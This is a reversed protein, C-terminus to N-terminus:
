EVPGDEFEGDEEPPEEGEPDEGEEPEEEAEEDRGEEDQPEGEEGEEPEEEGEHEQGEEDLSEEDQPDVKNPFIPQGLRPTPNLPSTQLQPLRPKLASGPQLGRIPAQLPKKEYPSPLKAPNANLAGKDGEGEAESPAAAKDGDEEDLNIKGEIEKPPVYQYPKDAGDEQTAAGKKAVVKRPKDADSGMWWMAAGIGLGLVLLAALGGAVMLGLRGRWAPIPEPTDVEHHAEIDEELSGYVLEFTGDETQRTVLGVRAHKGSDPRAGQEPATHEAAQEPEQTAQVQKYKGTIPATRAERSVGAAGLHSRETKRKRRSGM